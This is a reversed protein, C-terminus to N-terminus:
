SRTAEVIINLKVDCGIAKSILDRSEDIIRFIKVGKEGVVKSVMYKEPCKINLQVHLSGLDDYAFGVYKYNLLYPIAHDVNDMVKGRIIGHVVEKTTQNTIYEPGHPWLEVPQASKLMHERLDDVGDETLASISFVQSFNRYSISDPDEFERRTTTNESQPSSVNNSLEFVYKHLPKPAPQQPMDYSCELFSKGLNLEHIRQYTLTALEKKDLVFKNNLCGQTLRTGIDLLMRKEKLLDVKNLILISRKDPNENLLKLVGKNLRRQERINSADVLVAILDCKTTADEPDFILSKELKHKITHEKTVLGPSDFFELQTDNSTYVGLVNRRTTHVKNSVCSIDTEVFRNLLTSKGANPSGIIAVRLLRKCVNVLNEM